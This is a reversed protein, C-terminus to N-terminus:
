KKEEGESGLKPSSQMKVKVMAHRIVEDGIQYGPQLEECVVEVSGDGEEMHVAEHLKPDFVEGVTKIRKVGLQSFSQEFQKIVGQVGKAYDHDKLDKPTHKMARELNDLAPLLEQIILAKYFEAMKSREEEARRRLNQADARERQLAETLAGIKQELEKLTPKKNSM